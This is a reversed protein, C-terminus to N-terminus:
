RSLMELEDDGRAQSSIWRLSPRGALGYLDDLEATLDALAGESGRGHDEGVGRDGEGM